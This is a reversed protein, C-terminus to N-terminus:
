CLPHKWLSSGTYTYLPSLEAHVVLTSFQPAQMTIVAVESCLQAACEAAVEGIICLPVGHYKEVLLWEARKIHWILSNHEVAYRVPMTSNIALSIKILYEM